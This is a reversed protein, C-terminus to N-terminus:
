AIGIKEKLEHFDKELEDVMTAMEQMIEWM